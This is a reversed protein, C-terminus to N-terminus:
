QVIKNNTDTAKQINYKHKNKLRKHALSKLVLIQM